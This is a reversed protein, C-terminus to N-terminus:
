PWNYLSCSLFTGSLPGLHKDARVGGLLELDLLHPLQPVSLGCSPDGSELQLRTLSALQDCETAM